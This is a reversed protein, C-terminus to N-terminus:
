LLAAGVALAATGLGILVSDRTIGAAIRRSAGADEDAAPTTSGDDHEFTGENARLVCTQRRVQLFGFASAAAPLFVVVRLYWAVHFLALGAFLAVAVALMRYGFALRRRIALPSINPRCPRAVAGGVAVGVETTM